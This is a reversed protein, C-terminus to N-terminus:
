KTKQVRGLKEINEKFFLKEGTLFYKLQLLSKLIGEALIQSM